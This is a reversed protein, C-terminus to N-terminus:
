TGARTPAPLTDAYTTGNWVWRDTDQLILDRMGLHRSSTMAIPGSITDLVKVWKDGTKWFTLTNCGASGCERASQLQVFLLPGDHPNGPQATAVLVLPQDGAQRAEALDKAMLHRALKDIASGPRARLVVRAGRIPKPPAARTMEAAGPQLEGHPSDALSGSAAAAILMSAVTAGLAIHSFPKM